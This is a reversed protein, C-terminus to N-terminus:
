RSIVEVVDVKGYCVHVVKKCGECELKCVIETDEKISSCGGLLLVFLLIRM